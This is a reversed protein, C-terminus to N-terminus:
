KPSAAKPKATFSLEQMTGGKIANVLYIGASTFGCLATFLKCSKVLDDWIQGTVNKIKDQM